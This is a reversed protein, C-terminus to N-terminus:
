NTAGKKTERFRIGSRHLSKRVAAENKGLIVAIEDPKVGCRALIEEPKGSEGNSNRETSLAAFALLANLKANIQVFDNEDNM